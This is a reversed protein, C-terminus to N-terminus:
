GNTMMDKLYDSKERKYIIWAQVVWNPQDMWGGPYLLAPSEVMLSLNEIMLTTEKSIYTVPCEFFRIDGLQFVKVAKKEKIEQNIDPTYKLFAPEKLNLRNGCNRIDQENCESCIFPM